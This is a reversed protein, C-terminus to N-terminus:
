SYKSMRPHTADLNSYLYGYGYRNKLRLEKSKNSVPEEPKNRYRAYECLSRQHTNHNHTDNLYQDLLPSELANIANTMPWHDADALKVFDKTLALLEFILWWTELFLEGNKEEAIAIVEQVTKGQTIDIRLVIELIDMSDKHSELRNM